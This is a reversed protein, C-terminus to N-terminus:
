SGVWCLWCGSCAWAGARPPSSPGAGTRRAATAKRPAISEELDPIGDGFEGRPMDRQRRTTADWEEDALDPDAIKAHGDVMVLSALLRGQAIAKSVAEKSM